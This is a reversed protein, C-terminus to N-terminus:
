PNSISHRSWLLTIVISKILGSIECTSKWFTNYLVYHVSSNLNTCKTFDLWSMIICLQIFTYLLMWDPLLWEILQHQIWTNFENQYSIWLFFTATSRWLIQISIFITGENEMVHIDQNHFIACMSNLTKNM